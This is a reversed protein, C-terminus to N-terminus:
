PARPPDPRFDFRGGVLRAQSSLTYLGRVRTGEPVYRSTPTDDPIDWCEARQNRGLDFRVSRELSDFERTAPDWKRLFAAMYREEKLPVTVEEIGYCDDAYPAFHILFSEAIQLPVQFAPARMTSFDLRCEDQEMDVVSSRPTFTVFPAPVEQIFSLGERPHDQVPSADDPIFHQYLVLVPVAASTQRFVHVNSWPEFDFTLRGCDQDQYYGSKRVTERSPETSAMGVTATAHGRYQILTGRFGSGDTYGAKVEREDFVVRFTLDLAQDTEARTLEQSVETDSQVRLDESRDLQHVARLAVEVTPFVQVKVPQAAEDTWFFPNGGEDQGLQAWPTDRCVGVTVLDVLDNPADDRATLALAEPEGLSNTTTRRPAVEGFDPSVGGLVDVSVGGLPVGDAGTVKFGLMRREGPGLLLTDSDPPAIDLPCLWTFPRDQSDGMAELPVDTLVGFHKTLHPIIRSQSRACYEARPECAKEKQWEVEAELFHLWLEKEDVAFRSAQKTGDHHTFNLNFCFSRQTPHPDIPGFADEMGTVELVPAMDTGWSATPNEVDFWHWALKYEMRRPTLASVMFAHLLDLEAQVTSRLEDLRALSPVWYEETRVWKYLGGPEKRGVSITVGVDDGVGLETDARVTARHQLFNEEVWITMRVYHDFSEPDEFVVQGHPQPGLSVDPIFTRGWQGVATGPGRETHGDPLHKIYQVVLGVRAPAEAGCDQPGPTQAHLPLAPLLALTLVVLTSRM